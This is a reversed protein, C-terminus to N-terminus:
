IMNKIQRHINEGIVSNCNWSCKSKVQMEKLLKDICQGNIESVVRNSQKIWSEWLKDKTEKNIWFKLYNIDYDNTDIEIVKKNKISYLWISCNDVVRELIYKHQMNRLLIDKENEIEETVEFTKITLDKTDLVLMKNALYPIFWIKDQTNVSNLFLQRTEIKGVKYMEFDNISINLVDIREEKKDWVVIEKENGSLWFKNAVFCITNFGKNNKLPLFYYQYVRTKMDFECVTNSTKSICYIKEEIQICEWGIKEEKNEFIPYYGVVERSEADIEIIQKQSISVAFFRNDLLFANMIGCRKQELAGFEIKHISDRLIDYVKIQNGIDPFCFIYHKYKKCISFRRFDFIDTDSFIKILNIEGTIVNMKFLANIQCGMFWVANNDSCMGDNWTFENEFDIM